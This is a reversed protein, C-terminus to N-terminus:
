YRKNPNREATQLFLNGTGGLSKEGGPYDCKVQLRLIGSASGNSNVIIDTGDIQIDKDTVERGLFPAPFLGQRLMGKVLQIAKIGKESTDDTSQFNIKDWATSRFTLGVCKEIDFPPVLYGRATPEDVDRQYGNRQPYNGMEIAQLGCDTPYVYVRRAVPCVHVRIDSQENQIGYDFLDQSM